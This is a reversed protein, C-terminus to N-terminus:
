LLTTDLRSNTRTMSTLMVRMLEAQRHTSTKKFIQRLYTRATDNQIKMQKAAENITLGRVLQHVLRSEVATLKYMGCVPALLHEVSQEPDVIYLIVAPDRLDIAPQGAHMVTAVLARKKSSRQLTLVPSRQRSLDEPTALENLHLAHQIAAQLRVNAQLDTAAILSNNLWLGDRMTMATIARTNAFVVEGRRSLLLVGIDSLDLAVTLANARRREV